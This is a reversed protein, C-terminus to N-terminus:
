PIGNIKKNSINIFNQEMNKASIWSAKSMFHTAKPNVKRNRKVMYVRNWEVVTDKRKRTKGKSDTTIKTVRKLAKIYMVTKNGKSNSSGGMVYGDQQAHISSVIFREKGKRERKTARHFKSEPNSVNVLRDRVGKMRHKNRINRRWSNNVRAAGVGIFSRNNISGGVEQQELDEVSHSADNSKPVFGVTSKMKNVDFGEAQVVKSNAKFFTPKRPIFRKAEKPMTTTKVEFAAANLTQRIAVPLASRNIKVLRDAYRSVAATNIDFTVQM